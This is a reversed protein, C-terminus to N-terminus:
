QYRATQSMASAFLTNVTSNTRGRALTLGPSIASRKM